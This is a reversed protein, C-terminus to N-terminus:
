PGKSLLLPCGTELIYMWFYEICLFVYIHVDKGRRESMFLVIHSVEKGGCYLKSVMEQECM